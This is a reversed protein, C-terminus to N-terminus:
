KKQATMMMLSLLGDKDATLLEDDRFNYKRRAVVAWESWLERANEIYGSSTLDAIGTDGWCKEWWSLSKINVFDDEPWLGKLFAPFIGNTEKTVCPVAIGLQGGKKVLKSFVEPFYNENAGFYQYSDISVVADFYEDAFPLEDANAHLPIIRNELGLSLFRQYNENASIWLDVAYVTVDFNEALWISTLGKGCGLDLIKMGNEIKLHRCAQRLMEISCPGMLNEEIFSKDMTSKDTM